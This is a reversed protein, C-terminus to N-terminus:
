KEKLKTRPHAKPNGFPKKDVDRDPGCADFLSWMREDKPYAAGQPRIKRSRCCFLEGGMESCDDIEAIDKLSEELLHINEPTVKECDASAWWFLDNCNVFFTIPAYEDDTRWWIMDCFGFATAKMVRLYFEPEDLLNIVESNPLTMYNANQSTLYEARDRIAQREEINM